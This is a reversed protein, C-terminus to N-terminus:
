TIGNPTFYATFLANFDTEGQVSARVLGNRQVIQGPSPPGVALLAAVTSRDAPSFDSGDVTYEGVPYFGFYDYQFTFTVVYNFGFDRTIANCGVFIWTGRPYTGWSQSNIFSDYGDYTGSVVNWFTGNFPIVVELTGTVVYKQV